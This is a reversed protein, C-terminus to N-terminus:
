AAGYSLIRVVRSRLASSSVLGEEARPPAPQSLLLITTMQVMLGPADSVSCVSLVSFFAHMM